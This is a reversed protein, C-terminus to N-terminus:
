KKKEQGRKEFLQKLDSFATMPAKGDLMEDTIPKVPKPKSPRSQHTKPRSRGRDGGPRGGKRPRRKGAPKGGGQKEGEGRKGKPPKPSETGPEIATLSVRRNSIDVGTVWVVLADGVSVVEHPDRIFKDALRSIHVLGSDSLGIDVFAGFDVVNLVVGSLEMGVTLDELKMIGRRFDPSPLDERPDRGPRSLANLTDAVLMEGAELKEALEKANSEAAKAALARIAEPSVFESESAEESKPEAETLEPKAAEPKPSEGTPEATAVAEDQAPEAPTQVELSDAAVDTTETAPSGVDASPSDTESETTASPEAAEDTADKPKPPQLEAAFEPEVREPPRNTALDDVQSGLHNLVKGALEYSEPHIWTGDLPNEGGVIRLFGAAQVFGAEGFGAVEKLEERTKFPGNAQRHEYVRRATLQNMGAVYRLLSPSASNVDVGVFNVCSEVVGDLTDRLTKTKVDHQYLGVGINAPNIKVLESLPDLLRRGISIASRLVPDYTPLEERGIPSTSYVSAGAENVITYALDVDKLESALLGAILQETERCAAGNGIAIVTIQHKKVMECLKERGQRCRDERGIIHIVSFDLVAGFEDVCAVKCGSRFGPDIALVRKQSVPPQLLLKRLNRAFVEIAHQEAKDTLERRVERELSPQINRQVSDRLCTVLFDRQQHAEPLFKVAEEFVKEGDIGIKVKLINVREGRNIALIRHPPMQSIAQSFQFYNKFSSELKQRKRKKAEKRLQKNIETKSPGKKAPAPAMSMSASATEARKEEVSATETPSDLPPEAPVQPEPTGTEPTGTEPTATEPTATEPTATEPTATEPTATESTADSAATEGSSTVTEDSSSAESSKAETEIPKSESGAEDLQTATLDAAPATEAKVESAVVAGSEESVTSEDTKEANKAANAAEANAVPESHRSCNLTATRWYFSRLKQRLDVRESFEEAIIHRLGLRVSAVDPLDKEANVLEAARADLDAVSDSMVEAALDGLGRKRATSALTQKKPKFPLYIDELLKISNANEIQKKLEDSLKQQGEISKLITAKREDLQQYRNSVRQIARIQEDELGGTTDRRFRTIFPVTNGEDLLSLASEVQQPPLDLEQAVRALDISSNVAM